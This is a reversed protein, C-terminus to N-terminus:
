APSMSMVGSDLNWIRRDGSESASAIANLLRHLRVADFFTPAVHTDEEIDRAYAAYVNALELASAPIDSPPLWNYKPPVPLPQLPLREGRAGEIKNDECNHFSATNSLKLDGETGTIDLQVGFNNRKGGEIHVSFVAGSQLTGSLLVQDPTTTPITEGTEILTISEFQNATLATFDRPDGVAAFLMDLFHGGYISFPHSFNAANITFGIATSRRQQFLNESVHLRVSRVKGVYGEELLDHLYRNSPALRRQLGILHHAGAKNAAQLLSVSSKTSPTLPWECYVNKGAAIAARVGTEHQPAPTLIAVLDVEPHEVVAELTNVAYPIAFKKAIEEAYQQRRSSIVVVEFEPLLNLVPIHAYVAWNGIGVLGVRIRSTAKRM